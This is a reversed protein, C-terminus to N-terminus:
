KAHEERETSSQICIVRNRHHACAQARFLTNSEVESEMFNQHRDKLLKRSLLQSIEHRSLSSETRFGVLLTNQPGSLPVPFGSAFNSKPLAGPEAPIFIDLLTYLEVARCSRLNQSPMALKLTSRLPLHFTRAAQPVATPSIM